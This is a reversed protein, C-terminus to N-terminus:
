FNRIMGWHNFMNQFHPLQKKDTVYKHIQKNIKNKLINTINMDLYKNSVNNKESIMYIIVCIIKEIM